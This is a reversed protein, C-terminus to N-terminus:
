ALHERNGTDIKQVRLESYMRQLKSLSPWHFEATNLINWVARHGDEDFTRVIDRTKLCRMSLSMSDMSRTATGNGRPGITLHRTASAATFLNSYLTLCNALLISATVRTVYVPDINM